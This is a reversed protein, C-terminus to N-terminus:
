IGQPVKDPTTMRQRPVGGFGNPGMPGRLAMVARITVGMFAKTADNPSAGLTVTVNSEQDQAARRVTVNLTDGPKHAAVADALTQPDRM